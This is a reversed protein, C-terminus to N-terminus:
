VEEWLDFGPKWWGSAIEELDNKIVKDPERLASPDYLNHRVYELDAPYERDLLYNAYPILALARIAPGDRDSFLILEHAIAEGRM